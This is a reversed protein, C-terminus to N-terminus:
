LTLNLREILMETGWFEFKDAKTEPTCIKYWGGSLNGIHFEIGNIKVVEGTRLFGSTQVEMQVVYWLMAKTTPVELERHVAGMDCDHVVVHHRNVKTVPTFAMSLNRFATVKM